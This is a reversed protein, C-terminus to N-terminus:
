IISIPLSALIQISRLIFYKSTRQPVKLAGNPLDICCSLGRQCGM